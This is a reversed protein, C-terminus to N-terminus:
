ASNTQSLALAGTTGSARARRGPRRAAARRPPRRADGRQPPADLVGPAVRGPHPDHRHGLAEVDARRRRPASAAPSRRCRRSSRRRAAPWPTRRASRHSAVTRDRGDAAVRARCAGAGVRATASGRRPGAGATRASAGTTDHQCVSAAVHLALGDGRVRGPAVTSTSTSVVPGRGFRSDGRRLDRRQDADSRSRPRSTRPRM